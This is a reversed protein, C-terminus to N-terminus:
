PLTVQALPVRRDPLPEGTATLAPVRVLTEPDYMGVYLRYTGSGANVSLDYGDVLLEGPKWATTPYAGGVPTGDQQAVVQDGADALHVFVSYARGIPAAARWYLVVRLPRAVELRYGVLTASGIRANVPVIGPEFERPTAYLQLRFSSIRTELLRDDYRALYNEVMHDPDWFDPAAPIFWIRRYELNLRALMEEDAATPWFDKPVTTLPIAGRHYYVPAMETFNQIVVDGPQQRAAIFQALSRWDPAKAYAPDFYYNVLAFAQTSVFLILSVALLGLGYRTSRGTAPGADVGFEAAAVGFGRPAFRRWLLALGAALIVYYGPAIGNLYRELFLPRGISIVYQALTPVVLWLSLFLVQDRHRRSLVVLVAVVALALPVWLVTRLTEPVTDGLVFAALTRRVIDVLSVSQEGSGEGYTTVRNTGFLVWPVYVLALIVQAGIWRALTKWWGRPVALLFVFANEAALIFTDYYHTYLSATRLVVYGTLLTLRLRRSASEGKSEERWWQWFLVLAALSLAPWMTYNRVDQSHWIQYPNLAMLLAALLAVAAMGATSPATAARAQETPAPTASGGRRSGPTASRTWRRVDFMERTLRYALPVCLVGFFASFYRTAFESAGALAVWGRLALYMLPPNPEILRIGKWLGEWTRQVFVVTFAEDGRLSVLDLQLVRLLYAALVIGLLVPRTLNMALGHERERRNEGARM